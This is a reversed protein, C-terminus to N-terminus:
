QRLDLFENEKITKLSDPFFNDFFIRKFDQWNVGDPHAAREVEWWHEANGQLLPVAVAVKVDNPYQMADFLKELEKIWREAATPDPGGNFTPPNVRRFREFYSSQTTVDQQGQQQRILNAVVTSIGSIDAQTALPPTNPLTTPTATPTTGPPAATAGPNVGQVPPSRSPGADVAINRIPSVNTSPRGRHTQGRTRVGRRIM